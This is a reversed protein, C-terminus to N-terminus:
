DGRPMTSSRWSLILEVCNEQLSPAGNEKHYAYSLRYLAPGHGRDNHTRAEGSAGSRTICRFAPM